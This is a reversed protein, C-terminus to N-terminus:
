EDRQDVAACVADGPRGQQVADDKGPPPGARLARPTGSSSSSRQRVLQLCM